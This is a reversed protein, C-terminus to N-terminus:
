ISSDPMAADVAPGADPPPAGADPPPGGVSATVTINITTQSQTPRGDHHHLRCFLKHPGPPTSAPVTVTVNTSATVLIPASNEDDLYIQFHAAVDVKDPPPTQDPAILYVQSDVTVNVAVSSGEKVDNTDSSSSANINAHDLDFNATINNGHIDATCGMMPAFCALGAVMLLNMLSKRM